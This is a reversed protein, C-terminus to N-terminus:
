SVRNEKSLEDVNGQSIKEGAATSYAPKTRKEDSSVETQAKGTQHINTVHEPLKHFQWYWVGIGTSILLLALLGFFTWYAVRDSRDKELKAQMAQWAQPDFSIDPEELSKKFWDDLENDAKEQTSM